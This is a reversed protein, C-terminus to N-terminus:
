PASIARTGRPTLHCTTARAAAVYVCCDADLTLAADRREGPRVRACRGARPILHRIVNRLARQGTNATAWQIVRYRRPAM